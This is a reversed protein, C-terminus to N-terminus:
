PRSGPPPGPRGPPPGGVGDRRRHELVADVRARQEPPLVARTAALAADLAAEGRLIEDQVALMQRYATRTEEVRAAIRAAQGGSLPLGADELGAIGSVLDQLSLTSGIWAYGHKINRADVPGSLERRLREASDADLPAAGPVVEVYPTLVYTEPGAGRWSWLGLGLHVLACGLVAAWAATHQSM